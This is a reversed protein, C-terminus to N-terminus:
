CLMDAFTLLIATRPKVSRNSSPLPPSNYPSPMSVSPAGYSVTEPSKSRYDQHQHYPPLWSSHQKSARPDHAPVYTVGDIQMEARGHQEMPPAPSMAGGANFNPTQSLAGKLSKIQGRNRGLYYLLAGIIALGAIAGVVIGGIAGGSLGHRHHVESAAPNPSTSMITNALSSISAAADSPLTQNPELAIRAQKALAIQATLNTENTPNIVGLM